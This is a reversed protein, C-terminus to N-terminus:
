RTPAAAPKPAAKPKASAAATTTASPTAAAASVTATPAVTAVTPPPPVYKPPVVPSPVPKPGLGFLQPARWMVIGIGCASVLLLMLAFVALKQATSPGRPRVVVTPTRPRRPREPMRMTLQVQGPRSSPVGQVAFSQPTNPSLPSAVAMPSSSVHPAAPYPGSSPPGMPHTMPVGMPTTLPATMQPPGGPVTDDTAVIVAPASLEAAVHAAPVAHPRASAYTASSRGQSEAVAMKVPPAPAAERSGEGLAAHLADFDVPAPDASPAAGNVRRAVAPPPIGPKTAAAPAKPGIGPETGGKAAPDIDEREAGM